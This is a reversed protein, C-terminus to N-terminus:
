YQRRGPEDGELRPRWMRSGREWVITDENMKRFEALVKPDIALGGNDNYYVFDEGFRSQIEYVAYEQELHGRETVEDHMWQAVAKADVAM